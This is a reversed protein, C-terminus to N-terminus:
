LDSESGKPLDPSKQPRANSEVAGGNAKSKAGGSPRAASDTQSGAPASNARHTGRRHCQSDHDAGGQGALRGHGGPAHPRAALADARPAAAALPLGQLRPPLRGHGRRGSGLPPVHSLVILPELRGLRRTALRMAQNWAATESRHGGKGRVGPWTLGAISLGAQHLTATSQIPEPCSEQREPGGENTDHNGHVYLLPANFGDAIFALDDITSTEAASSSTLRPSPAATAPM